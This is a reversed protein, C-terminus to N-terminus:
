NVKQKAIRAQSNTRGQKELIQIHPGAGFVNRVKV